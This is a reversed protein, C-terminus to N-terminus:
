VSYCSHIICIFTHLGGLITTGSRGQLFAIHSSISLVLPWICVSLLGPVNYPGCTALPSRCSKIGAAM